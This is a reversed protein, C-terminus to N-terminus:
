TPLVRADETYGRVQNFSVLIKKMNNKNRRSVNKAEKRADAKELTTKSRERKLIKKREENRIDSSTQYYQDFRGNARKASYNGAIYLCSM